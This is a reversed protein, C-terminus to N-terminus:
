RRRELVLVTWGGDQRRELLRFGSALYTAAVERAQHNSLGSLVAVGGPKIARRMAPALALLPGPLLNALMLDYPQARRLDPHDFGTAPVTEVRAGIRNLRANERAIALAIPDNDSAPVRAASLARAAAIALVGTGCGLDLM